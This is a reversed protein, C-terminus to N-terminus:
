AVVLFNSGKSRVESGKIPDQIGQETAGLGAGEWGIKELLQHGINAESIRHDMHSTRVQLLM